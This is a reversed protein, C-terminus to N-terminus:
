RPPEGREDQEQRLEARGSVNGEARARDERLSRVVRELEDIRVEQRTTTRLCNDYHSRLDVHTAQLVTAQEKLVVMQALCATYDREVEDLRALLALRLREQGASIVEFRKSDSDDEAVEVTQGSRRFVLWASVMAAIGSLGSLAALWAVAPSWDM